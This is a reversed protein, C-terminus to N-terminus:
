RWEKKLGRDQQRTKHSPTTEPGRDQQRTKHSPTTEPQTLAPTTEPQTLAHSNRDRVFPSNLRGSNQYGPNCTKGKM